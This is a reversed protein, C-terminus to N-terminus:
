HDGFMVVRNRGQEKAQYMAIDANKILTEMDQGDDPYVAAGISTSILLSKDGLFFSNGFLSLLKAAITRCDQFQEIEPLFVIFEDGGLRAVTDMRRVAATLRSGVAKLLVDGVDHGLTDNVNKFKDLDMLMVALKERDRAARALATEM